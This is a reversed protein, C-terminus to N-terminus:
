SNDAINYCRSYYRNVDFINESVRFRHRSRQSTNHEDNQITGDDNEEDSLKHGFAKHAVISFAATPNTMTFRRLDM